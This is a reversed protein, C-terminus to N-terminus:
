IAAGRSWSRLIPFDAQQLLVEDAGVQELTVHSAVDGIGALLQAALNGEDVSNVVDLTFANLLLNVVEGSLDGSLNGVGTLLEAEM